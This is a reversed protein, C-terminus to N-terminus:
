EGLLVTLDWVKLGNVKENVLVGNETKVCRGKGDKYLCIERLQQRAIGNVKLMSKLRNIEKKAEQNCFRLEKLETAQVDWSERLNKNRDRADKLEKELEEITNERTGIKKEAVTLKTSLKSNRSELSEKIKNIIALEGKLRAIEKNKDKLLNVANDIEKEYTGRLVIPMKM